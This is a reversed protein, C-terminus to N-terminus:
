ITLIQIPSEILTSSMPKRYKIIWIDRMNDLNTVWEFTGFLFM